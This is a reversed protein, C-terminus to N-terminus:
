AMPAKGIAMDMGSLGRTVSGIGAASCSSERSSPSDGKTGSCPHPSERMRWAHHTRHSRHGHHGPRRQRRLSPDSDSPARPLLLVMDYDYGLSMFELSGFWIVMGLHLPTVMRFECPITAAIRLGGRGPTGVTSTQVLPGLGSLHILTQAYSIWITHLFFV